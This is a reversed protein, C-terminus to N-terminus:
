FPETKKQIRMMGLGDNGSPSFEFYRMQSSLLSDQFITLIAHRITPWNTADHFIVTAKTSLHPFLLLFDQLVATTSHDGDIFALDIPPTMENIRKGLVERGPEGAGMPASFFGRHLKVIDDLELTELMTRAHLLPQSVSLHPIDPDVCYLTGKGNDKLAHALLVTSFGVFSGIELVTTPRTERVICYLAHADGPKVSALLLDSIEEQSGIWYDLYSLFVNRFIEMSRDFAEMTELNVRERSLDHALPIGYVWCQGRFGDALNRLTKGNRLGFKWAVAGMGNVMGLFPGLFSAATRLLRDRRARAMSGVDRSGAVISLIHQFIDCTAIDVVKSDIGLLQQFSDLHEERGSLAIRKQPRRDVTSLIKRAEDFKHHHALLAAFNLAAPPPLPPRIEEFLGRARELDGLRMYCIGLCTLNWPRNLPDEPIKEFATAAQQWRGERFHHIAEERMAVSATKQM